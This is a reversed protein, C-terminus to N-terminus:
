FLRPHFTKLMDLQKVFEVTDGFFSPYAARLSAFSGASVLVAQLTKGDGVLREAESYKESAEQLRDRSFATITVQKAFPDLVILHYATPAGHETVAYKGGAIDAAAVAFGALRERVHLAEANELVASFTERQSLAAHAACPPCREIHAFASGTLGFFDLWEQSGQSSKLAENLFIGMTEVATAWIHQLRTRFQLEIQLGKYTSSLRTQPNDYRFMLHISRYGSEKPAGIYDDQAALHHKFAHLGLDVYVDRLSQVQKVTDVVARLGGIDQMQSLRMGPFNNLKQM